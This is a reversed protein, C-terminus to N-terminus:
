IITWGLAVWILLMDFSAYLSSSLPVYSSICFLYMSVYVQLYPFFGKQLRNWITVTRPFVQRSTVEKKGTSHSPFSSSEVSTYTARHTRSIFTQVPSILFKREGKYWSHYYRYHSSLSRKNSISLPTSYFEFGLAKTNLVPIHPNPLDLGYIIPM